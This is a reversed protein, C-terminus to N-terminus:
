NFMAATIRNALLCYSQPLHPYAMRRTDTAIESIQMNPLSLLDNFPISTLQTLMEAKTDELYPAINNTIFDLSSAKGGAVAVFYKMLFMPSHYYEDLGLDSDVRYYGVTNTPYNAFTLEVYGTSDERYDYCSNRTPAVAYFKNLVSSINAMRMYTKSVTNGDEDKWANQWTSGYSNGVSVSATRGYLTFCWQPLPFYPIFDDSNVINFINHYQSAHPTCGTSEECQSYGYGLCRDCVVTGPAAFTYAFVRKGQNTLKAAVLNALAGGRSHGTVWYTPTYGSYHPTIYRQVYDAVLDMIRESTIDFGMHHNQSVWENYSNFTRTDGIDVNSSWEEITGNTGRIFVAIVVAKNNGEVIPHYGLVVESVHDDAMRDSFDDRKAQQMGHFEMWSILETKSTSGSMVWRRERYTLSAAVASVKALSQHYTKNDAFFLGYDMVYQTDFYEGSAEADESDEVALQGSFTNGSSTDLNNPIGDNDLDGTVAIYCYASCRSDVTSTATIKAIGASITTVVGNQDVTAVAPNDSSWTFTQSANTDATYYIGTLPKRIDESVTLTAGAVETTGNYILVGELDTDVANFRWSGSGSGSPLTAYINAYDQTSGSVVVLRYTTDDVYCQVAHSYTTGRVEWIAKPDDAELFRAMVNRTDTGEDMVALRLSPNFMSSISYNTGGIYNIRWLQKLVGTLGHYQSVNVDEVIRDNELTAFLYSGTNQINYIGDPYVGYFTKTAVEGTSATVTVTVTGIDHFQLLGSQSVTAISSKSTTWTLVANAPTGITWLQLNGSYSSYDRTAGISFLNPALAPTAEDASASVSAFATWLCLIAILTFLFTLRHKKM